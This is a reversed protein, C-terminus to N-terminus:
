LLPILDIAQEEQSERFKPLAVDVACRGQQLFQNGQVAIVQSGLLFQLSQGSSCATFLCNDTLLKLLAFVNEFENYIIQKHFDNACHIRVASNRRFQGLEISGVNPSNRCDGGEASKKKSVVPHDDAARLEEILCKEV